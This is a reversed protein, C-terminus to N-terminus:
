RATAQIQVAVGHKVTVTVSQGVSLASLPVTQGNLLVKTDSNVKFKHDKIENDKKKLKSLTITNGTPDISEVMGLVTREHGGRRVGAQLANAFSLALLLAVVPAVRRM